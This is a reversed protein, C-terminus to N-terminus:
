LSLAGARALCVPPRSVLADMGGHPQDGAGPVAIIVEYPSSLGSRSKSIAPRQDDTVPANARLSKRSGCLVEKNASGLFCYFYCGFYCYYVGRGKLTHQWAFRNSERGGKRRGSLSSMGPWEACLVRM